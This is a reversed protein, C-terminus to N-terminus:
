VMFEGEKIFPEDEQPKPRPKTIRDGGGEPYPSPKSHIEGVTIVCRPNLTLM